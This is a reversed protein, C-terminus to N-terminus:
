SLEFAEVQSERAPGTSSTKVHYIGWISSVSKAPCEESTSHEGRPQHPGSEVKTMDRWVHLM